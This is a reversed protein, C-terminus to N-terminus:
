LLVGGVLLLLGLASVQVAKGMGLVVKFAISALCLLIGAAGGGLYVRARLLSGALMAAFCVGLLTLNFGIPHRLDILAYYASSGIMSLLVVSEVKRRAELDMDGGFLRLLVLVGGGAPIVYAQLSRLELKSYVILVAFAVFGLVALANYPSKKQGRGMFLLIVSNVGLVVITVDSPLDNKIAWGIAALPLVLLNALLVRREHKAGLDDLERLGALLATVALSAWVDYELSWWSTTLQIQQRVTLLLALGCAEAVLLLLLSERTRSLQYWGVALTAWLALSAGLAMPEYVVGRHNVGVVAMAFTGAILSGLWIPWRHNSWFDAVLHIVRPQDLRMAVLRDAALVGFRLTLYGQGIIAGAAWLMPEAALPSGGARLDTHTFYALWPLGLLLLGAGLGDRVTTALRRESPTVLSLGLFLSAGLLGEWSEPHLRLAHCGSFIALTMFLNALRPESEIRRLGDYAVAACGWAALLIWLVSDKDLYSPLVFDGHLAALTLLFAVTRQWGYGTVAGHHAFITALGFILPAVLQPQPARWAGLLMVVCTAILTLAGVARRQDHWSASDLGSIWQLFTRLPSPGGTAIVFAHSLGLGLWAGAVPHDFPSLGPILGLAFYSGAVLGTAGYFSLWDNGGLGRLRLLALSVVLLVPAGGHYAIANPPQEPFLILQFVGQFAYLGTLFFCLVTASDRYRRGIESLE